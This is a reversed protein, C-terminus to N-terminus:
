EVKTKQYIEMLQDEYEDDLFISEDLYEEARSEYEEFSELDGEDGKAVFSGIDSAMKRHANVIKLLNNHDYEFYEPPVVNELIEDLEEFDKELKKAPEILQKYDESWEAGWLGVQVGSDGIANSFNDMAMNDKVLLEIAMEEYEQETLQKPSNIYFGIILVAVIISGIVKMNYKQKQGKQNNSVNKFHHSVKDTTNSLQIKLKGLTQYSQSTEQSKIETGCLGCFRASTELSNGCQACFNM